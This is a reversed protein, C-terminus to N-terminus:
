AMKLIKNKTKEPYILGEFDFHNEHVCFGSENMSLTHIFCLYLMSLTHFVLFSNANKWLVNLQDSASTGPISTLDNILDFRSQIFFRMLEDSNM